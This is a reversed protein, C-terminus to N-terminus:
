NYEGRGTFGGNVAFPAFQEPIWPIPLRRSENM